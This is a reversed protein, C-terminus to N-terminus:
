RSGGAAVRFTPGVRRNKHNQNRGGSPRKPRKIRPSPENRCTQLRVAAREDRASTQPGYIEFVAKVNTVPKANRLTRTTIRYKTNQVDYSQTTRGATRVPACISHVSCRHRLASSDLGWFTYLVILASAPNMSRAPRTSRAPVVPRGLRVFGSSRSNAAVARASAALASASISALGTANGAENGGHSTICHSGRM